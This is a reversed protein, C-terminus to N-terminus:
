ERLVSLIFHRLWESGFLVSDFGLHGSRCLRQLCEEEIICVETEDQYDGSQDEQNEFEVVKTEWLTLEEKLEKTQTKEGNEAISPDLRAHFAISNLRHPISQQHDEQTDEAYETPNEEQLKLGVDQDNLDNQM